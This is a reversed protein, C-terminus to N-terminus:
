AIQKVFSNQTPCCPDLYDRLEEHFKSVGKATAEAEFTALNPVRFWIQFDPGNGKGIFTEYVAEFSSGKPLGENFRTLDSFKERFQSRKESKICIRWIYYLSRVTSGEKEEASSPTAFETGLVIGAGVM